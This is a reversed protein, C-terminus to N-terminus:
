VMSEIIMEQKLKGNYFNLSPKVLIRIPLKKLLQQKIKSKAYFLTMTVGLKTELKMHQGESGFTRVTYGSVETLFIPLPFDQGFPDLKWTNQLLAHTIESQDLYIYNKIQGYVRLEEPADELTQSDWYNQVEKYKRKTAVFAQKLQEKFQDLSSEKVTYGAAQSHGGFKLLSTKCQTLIEVLDYGEVGRASGAGLVDNTSIVFSCQNTEATIRSALLGVIGKSWKGSIVICGNGAKLESTVMPTVETMAKTVMEKRKTNTEVLQTALTDAESRKWSCMTDLALSIHAIRGSANLIPSITFGLDQSNLQYGQTMKTQLGSHELLASLGPYPLTGSNLYKLGLQVYSRNTPNIISQCDAITAISVFGLLKELKKPTLKKLLSLSKKDLGKLLNQDLWDRIYYSSGVLVTWIVGAGVLSTSWPIMNTTEKNVYVEFEELDVFNRMSQLLKAENDQQLKLWRKTPKQTFLQDLQPNLAFQTSPLSEKLQHHDTIILDTGTELMFEAEEVATIGCDVTIILDNTESLKKLATINLGYSESFRDPAYYSLQEKSFGFEILGWYLVSTACVADTDYDAFICVKQNLVLAKILRLAFGRLGYVRPFQNQWNTELRTLVPVNKIETDGFFRQYYQLLPNVISMCVMTGMGQCSREITDINLPKVLSEISLV